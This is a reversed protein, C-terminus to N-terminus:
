QSEERPATFMWLPIATMGIAFGAGVLIDSVYKNGAAIVIAGLVFLVVATILPIRWLWHRVKSM